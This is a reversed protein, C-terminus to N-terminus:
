AEKMKKVAHDTQKVIINHQIKSLLNRHLTLVWKMENILIANLSNIVVLLTEAFFHLQIKCYANM